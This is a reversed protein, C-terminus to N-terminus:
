PLISPGVMSTRPMTPVREGKPQGQTIQDLCPLARNFLAAMTDDEPTYGEDLTNHMKHITCLVLVRLVFSEWENVNKLSPFEKIDWKLKKDVEQLVTEIPSSPDDDDSDTGSSSVASAGELKQRSLYMRMAMEWDYVVPKDTSYMMVFRDFQTKSAKLYDPQGVSLPGFENQLTNMFSRVAMM